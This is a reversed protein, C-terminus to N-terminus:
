SKRKAVPIVLKEATLTESFAVVKVDVLDAAKAAERVQAETIDRSGKPRVVWLAGSPTLSKKLAALKKLDVTKAAAFFIQDSSPTAKTTVIAAAAKLEEFFAADEVGIVSIRQGPKIGLKEARSRPNQIRHQWNEAAEGLEFVATGEGYEVSLKGFKANLKRIDKLPIKLRFDGRFIIEQTELLAKGESRKGKFSAICKLEQGM